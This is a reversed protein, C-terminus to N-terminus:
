PNERRVGAEEDPVLQNQISFIMSIEAPTKGKLMDAVKQCTLDVLGKINLFHAAMIMDFLIKDSNDFTVFQADWVKQNEDSTKALISGTITTLPIVINEDTQNDAIMQELTKSQLAITKEIDFTQEDSSKLTITKAPATSM